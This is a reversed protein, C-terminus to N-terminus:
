LETTLDLTKEKVRERERDRHNKRRKLDKETDIQRKGNIETNNLTSKNM